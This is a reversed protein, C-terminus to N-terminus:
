RVAAHLEELEAHVRVLEREPEILGVAPRGLDAFVANVDDGTRGRATIRGWAAAAEELRRAALGSDGRARAILGQV